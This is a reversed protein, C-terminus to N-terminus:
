TKFFVLFFSLMFYRCIIIMCFKFFRQRLLGLSSFSTDNVVAPWLRQDGCLSVSTKLCAIPIKIMNGGWVGGEGFTFGSVARCKGSDWEGPLM